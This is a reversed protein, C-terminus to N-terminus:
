YFKCNISETLDTSSSKDICLTDIWIYQWGDEFAQQCAAVVKGYGFKSSARVSGDQMDAFSVEGEGWTHSLIAYAIFENENLEELKLTQTNLLRM